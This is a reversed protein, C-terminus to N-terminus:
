IKPNQEPKPIYSFHSFYVFATKTGWRTKTGRRTQYMISFFFLKELVIRAKKDL